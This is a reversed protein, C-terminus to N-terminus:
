CGSCTNVFLSRVTASDVTLTTATTQGTAVTGASLQDTQLRPTDIRGATVAGDVTMRGAVIHDAARATGIDAETATVRSASLAGTAVSTASLSGTFTAADATIATTATISGATLAGNTTITSSTIQDITATGAVLTDTALTGLGIIDNGGMLLDASMTNLDERGPLHTRYLYPLADRKLSLHRLAIAAGPVFTNPAAAAVTPPLSYLVGPGTIEPSGVPSLPSIWGAAEIAPDAEPLSPPSVSTPAVAFVLLSDADPAFYWLEINRKRRTVFPKAPSWLGATALETLAIAKPASRASPINGVLDRELFAAGAEAVQDLLRYEERAAKRVLERNLLAMIQDAAIAVILLVLVTEVLSFGRLARRPRLPPRNRHWAARCLVTTRSRILSMRHM